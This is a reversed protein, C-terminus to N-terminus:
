GCCESVPGGIPERITEGCESCVLLRGTFSLESIYRTQHSTPRDCSHCWVPELTQAMNSPILSSASLHSPGAFSSLLRPKRKGKCYKQRFRELRVRAPVLGIRLALSSASGSSSTTNSM